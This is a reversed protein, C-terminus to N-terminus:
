ALNYPGDNDPSGDKGAMFETSPIHCSFVLIWYGYSHFFLQRGM